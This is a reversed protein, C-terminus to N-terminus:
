NISLPSYGESTFTDKHRTSTNGITENLKQGTPNGLNICCIWLFIDTNVELKLRAEKIKNESYVFDFAHLPM